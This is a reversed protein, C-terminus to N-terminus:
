SKNKAHNREMNREYRKPGPHLLPQLLPSQLLKKITNKNMKIIELLVAKILFIKQNLFKKHLKDKNHM